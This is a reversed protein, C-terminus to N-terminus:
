CPLYSCMVSLSVAFTFVCMIAHSAKLFQQDLPSETSHRLLYLAAIRAGINILQLKYYDSLGIMRGNPRRIKPSLCPNWWVSLFALVLALSALPQYASACSQEVEREQIGKRLCSMLSNANDADRLGDRSVVLAGMADWLMQGISSAWWGLAGIYM